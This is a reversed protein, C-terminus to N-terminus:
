KRSRLRADLLLVMAGGFLGGGAFVFLGAAAGSSDQERLGTGLIVLIILGIPIAALGAFILGIGLRRLQPYQTPEINM